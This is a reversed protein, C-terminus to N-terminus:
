LDDDFVIRLTSTVREGARDQVVCTREYALYRTIEFVDCPTVANRSASIELTLVGPGSAERRDAEGSAGGLPGAQQVITTPDVECSASRYVEGLEVYDLGEDDTGICRYGFGLYTEPDVVVIDDTEELIRGSDFTWTLEPPTNNETIEPDDDPGEFFSCGAILTLLSVPMKMMAGGFALGSGLAFTSPDHAGKM